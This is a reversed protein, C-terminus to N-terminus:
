LLSLFHVLIIDSHIKLFKTTTLLRYSLMVTSDRVLRGSFLVKIDTLVQFVLYLYISVITHLHHNCIMTESIYRYTSLTFRMM